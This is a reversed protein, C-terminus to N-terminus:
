GINILIGTLCNIATNIHKHNSLIFQAFDSETDGNLENLDTEVWDKLFDISEQIKEKDM